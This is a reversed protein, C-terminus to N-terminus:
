LGRGHRARVGTSQRRAPVVDAPLHRCDHTACARRSARCVVTLAARVCTVVTNGESLRKGRHFTVAAVACVVGSIVVTAGIHPSNMIKTAEQVVCSLVDNRPRTRVTANVFQFRAIQFVAIRAQGM